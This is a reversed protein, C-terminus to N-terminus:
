CRCWRRRSACALLVGCCWVSSYTLARQGREVGEAVQVVWSLGKWKPWALSSQRVGAWQRVQYVLDSGILVDMNEGPWSEQFGWDVTRVNVHLGASISKKNLFINDRDYSGSCM